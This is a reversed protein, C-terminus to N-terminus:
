VGFPLVVMTVLAPILSLIPALVYYFKKVHGPIPDEKFLFKVGDALPQWIGLRVLGPGIVPIASIGPLATRNPGVRGQIWSAIKREALVSYGAMSMVVGVMLFAYILKLLIDIWDM